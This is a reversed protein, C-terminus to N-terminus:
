GEEEARDDVSGRRREAGGLGQGPGLRFIELDGGNRLNARLRGGPTADIARVRGDTNVVVVSKPVVAERVAPSPAALLRPASEVETTLGAIPLVLLALVMVALARGALPLSGRSRADDLVARLREELHATHAMSLAMAGILRQSRAGRAVELLHEAYDPPPTGDVLVLDDAAHESESRLRRAAFWVLPHFWYVACGAQAVLQMLYDRRVVHALEHTLVVRLREENWTCAEVPLLVAPELWGWTIPSRVDESLGLHLRAVNTRHLLQTVLREVEPTEFPKAREALRRIGLHGLLGRFLLLVAGILWLVGLAEPLRTGDFVYRHRHETVVVPAPAARGDEEHFIRVPYDAARRRLGRSKAKAVLSKEVHVPVRPAFRTVLPLALVGALTLAWVFHRLAASASRLSLAIAAGGVLLLTVKAILGIM